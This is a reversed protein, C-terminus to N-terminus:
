LSSCLSVVFCGLITKNENTKVTNFVFGFPFIRFRPQTIINRRESKGHRDTEKGRNSYRTDSFFVHKKRDSGTGM